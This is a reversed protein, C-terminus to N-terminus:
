DCDVIHNTGDRLSTTCFNSQRAQHKTLKVHRVFANTFDTDTLEANSFDVLELEAGTFLAQTLIANQFSAANARANTFDAATLEAGDFNANVLYTGVFSAGSLDQGSFDAYALNQGSYDCQECNASAGNGIVVSVLLLFGRLVSLGSGQCMNLVYLWPSYCQNEWFYVHDIQGLPNNSNIRAKM